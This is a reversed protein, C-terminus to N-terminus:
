QRYAPAGTRTADPLALPPRRGELRRLPGTETLVRDIRRLEGATLALRQRIVRALREAIDPDARMVEQLTARELKLCNVPSDAIITAGYVHEVLMALEGILSGPVIPEEPAQSGMDPWRQADGSLVLYAADGLAGAKTIFAGPRFWCQEARRAIRGIQQPKLDAFISIRSLHGAINGTAM